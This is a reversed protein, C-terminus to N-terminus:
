RGVDADAYRRVADVIVEAAEDVGRFGDIDVNEKEKAKYDRFFIELKKREYATLDDLSDVRDYAPDGVAAAIIKHDSEGDDTMLMLGVPRADAFALPEIRNQCLVLVDLPDDDEALTQPIFGYNVPYHVASFLVRDMRLLGSDKDLEYKVHGNRPIEILAHILGPPDDGPSLDHWPHVAM